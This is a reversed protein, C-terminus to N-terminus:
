REVLIVRDDGSVYLNTLRLATGVELTNSYIDGIDACFEVEVDDPVEELIDRLEKVTM